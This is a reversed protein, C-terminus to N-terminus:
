ALNRTGYRTELALCEELPLISESTTASMLSSAAAAIGFRLVEDIPSEDHLGQLVGAAFADGAGVAGVIRSSPMQISGRHRFTGDTSLACAGEPFHVIVHERVGASILRAAAARIGSLDAKGEAHTTMGSTRELEFENLICYDVQPLTPLVIQAFRQSDESVVDISTKFGAQTAAQLVRGAVTGFDPDTQDLRDLLLLYGLHFIKGQLADFDFHEPGLFANAGRHHFFTRRGSSKVTMVDTFSTPAAGHTALGRTEIGHTECRERIWRGDPDDGVLGVGALPFTAGLKALAMLVNFPSGGNCVSHSLVNALADQRPYTDIIKIKDVIWNGGCVIGPKMKRM